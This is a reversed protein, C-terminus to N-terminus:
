YGTTATIREEQAATRFTEYDRRNQEAYAGAFSVIARDFTDSNGLYGAIMAADGAKAHSRALNWGCFKAYNALQYPQMGTPDLGYKM